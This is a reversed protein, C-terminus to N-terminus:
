VLEASMRLTGQTWRYLVQGHIALRGRIRVPYLGGNLARV